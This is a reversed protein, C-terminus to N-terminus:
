HLGHVKSLLDTIYYSVAAATAASAGKAPLSKSWEVLRRLPGFTPADSTLDQEIEHNIADLEGDPDLGSTGVLEFVGKLLQLFEEATLGANMTQSAYDGTAWQLQNISVITGRSPELHEMYARADGDYHEICSLGESTLRPQLPDEREEVRQGEILGKDLLWGAADRMEPWSFVQGLYKSRDRDYFFSSFDGQPIVQEYLWELLAGRCAWRRAVLSSRKRQFSHALTRGKSTAEATPAGRLQFGADVLGEAELLQADEEAREAAWSQTAYLPGLELPVESASLTLLLSWLREQVASLRGDNPLEEIVPPRTERENIIEEARAIGLATISVHGFLGGLTEFKAFGQRSVTQGIDFVDNGEIAAREAIQAPTARNGAVGDALEYLAVLYDDRRRQRAAVTTL